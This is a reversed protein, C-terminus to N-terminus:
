EQRLAKGPEAHAATFAVGSVTLLAIVLAAGSASPFLWLPMTIVDDFQALWSHLIVWALPWAILSAAAVPRLFQVLLLGVIQRRSAGLVKRMGIEHVRRGTNFAAMGYLGMCGILAAMGTGINFLNSRDREPKYYTDLNTAASIAEFPVDPIVQRWAKALTQRMAAEGVGQYRIMAIGYPLQPDFLYIRPPIAENPSEFRMDDVIGIIRIVGDSDNSFSAMQGIAAQPSTFGLVTVARRSIIVSTVHGTKAGDPVDRMQDEGRRPDFLRGALLRTGLMEFYGTGVVSTKLNPALAANDSHGPRLVQSFGGLGLGPGPIANGGAIARVTSLSRASDIFAQRQVPTITSNGTSSIIILNDRRFGLDATQIHRIQLMFGAMLIFASVVITFQLMALGTRLQGATRGGGPMRSSALVQAPKFASILFAPYLAAILGALMVSSFLAMLWRSNAYYDIRLSLGAAQNILPLTLEVASLALLFALLLTPVAELLFQLRLASPSAGLTKRVAVERARLGARATALNVYNILALALALIGVLGLSRIAAKLKPNILHMNALPVVSLELVKHAPKDGFTRGAQRDTFVPLQAAFAGADAPSKFKLYTRTAVVGWQHWLENNAGRQPTLLCLMDLQMDSNKPLDAIVASVTYTKYGENDSLTLTHGVADITDFYKRAMAASLVIHSPDSLAGTMSGHLVPVQFFSLFNADVLEMREAFVETGQHVVVDNRMDRTGDVQPYASRIEELLGGMTLMVLDDPISPVHLRVGMAYINPRESSWSEYNTEFRYLLSLTIFVAIGFALGLLNLLAYLPHRRFSRFFALIASKIM